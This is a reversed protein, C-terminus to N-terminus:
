KKAKVVLLIVAIVAVIAVAVITGIYMIPEGQEAQEFAQQPHPSISTSYQLSTQTSSPSKNTQTNQQIKVIVSPLEEITVNTRSISLYPDGPVLEIFDLPYMSLPAQEALVSLTVNPNNVNPFKFRFMEAVITGQSTTYIKMESPLIEVSSVHEMVLIDGFVVSRLSRAPLIIRDGDVNGSIEVDLSYDTTNMKLSVRVLTFMINSGAISFMYTNALKAKSILGSIVFNYSGNFGSYRVNTLDIGLSKVFSIFNSFEGCEPCFLTGTANFEFADKYPIVIAQPISLQFSPMTVLLDGRYVGDELFMNAVLVIYSSGSFDGHARLSASIHFKGNSFSGEINRTMNWRTPMKNSIYIIPRFSGDSYLVIKGSAYEGSVIPEASVLLVVLLILAVGSLIGPLHHEKV